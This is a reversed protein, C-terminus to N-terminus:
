CCKNKYSTCHWGRSFRSIWGNRLNKEMEAKKFTMWAGLVGWFLSTFVGMDLTLQRFPSFGEKGVDWFHVNKTLFPWFIQYVRYYICLGPQPKPIVTGFEVFGFGLKALCFAYQVMRENGFIAM